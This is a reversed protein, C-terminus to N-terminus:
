IKGEGPMAPLDFWHTTDENQWGGEEDWWDRDWFLGNINSIVVPYWGAITPSRDDICIWEMM